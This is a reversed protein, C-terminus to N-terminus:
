ISSLFKKQSHCFYRRRITELIQPAFCKGETPKGIQDYFPQVYIALAVIKNATGSNQKYCKERFMFQNQNMCATALDIYALQKDPPLNRQKFLWLQLATLSGNIPVSPFYATFDFSVLLEDEEVRVDKLHEILEFSNKISFEDFQEVKGFEKVLCKAVNHSPSNINSVVFRLKNGPNHIKPLGYVKPVIPNSNYM